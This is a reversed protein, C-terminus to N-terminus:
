GCRQEVVVVVVVHRAAALLQVHEGGAVHDVLELTLLLRVLRAHVRDGLEVYELVLEEVFVVLALEVVLLLEEVLLLLELEMLLAVLQVRVLVLQHSVRAGAGVGRCGAAGGRCGCGCCGCLVGGRAVDILEHRAADVVCELPEVYGVLAEVEGDVHLLSVVKQAVRQADLLEGRGSKEGVLLLLLLLYM